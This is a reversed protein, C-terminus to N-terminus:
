VKQSQLIEIHPSSKVTLLLDSEATLLVSLLLYVYLNWFANNKTIHLHAEM